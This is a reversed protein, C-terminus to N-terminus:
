IEWVAVREDDDWGGTGMKWWVRGLPNSVVEDFTAAAIKGEGVPRVRGDRSGHIFTRALTEPKGNSERGGDAFVFLVASELEDELWRYRQAKDRLKRYGEFGRDLELLLPYRIPTTPDYALGDRAGGPADYGGIVGSQGGIGMGDDQYGNRVVVCSGDPIVDASDGYSNGMQGYRARCGREGIWDRFEFEGSSQRCARALETFFRNIALRHARVNPNVIQDRKYELRRVEIGRAEAVMRAGVPGLMYENQNRGRLTNGIMRPAVYSQLVGMQTLQQLRRKVSGHKNGLQFFLIEIQERTLVGHEYVATAIDADRAHLYNRPNVTALDTM